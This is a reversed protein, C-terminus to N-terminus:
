GSKHGLAYAHLTAYAFLIHVPQVHPNRGSTIDNQPPNTSLSLFCALSCAVDALQSFAVKFVTGGVELKALSVNTCSQRSVVFTREAIHPM